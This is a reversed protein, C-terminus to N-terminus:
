LHEVCKICKHHNQLQRIEMNLDRIRPDCSDTQRLTDLESVAVAIEALCNSRFKAIRGASIFPSTAAAIVM